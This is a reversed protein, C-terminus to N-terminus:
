GTTAAATSGDVYTGNYVGLGKAAYLDNMKRHCAEQTRGIVQGILNRHQDFVVLMWSGFEEDYEWFSRHGKHRGHTRLKVAVVYPAGDTTGLGAPGPIGMRRKTLSECTHWGKTGAYM